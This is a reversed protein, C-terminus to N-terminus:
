GAGRKVQAPEIPGEQKGLLWHNLVLWLLSGPLLLLWWAPAPLPAIRVPIILDFVGFIGGPLDALLDQLLPIISGFETRLDFGSAWGRVASLWQRLFPELIPLAIWVLVGATAVQAALLLRWGRELRRGSDLRARVAPAYDTELPMDAVSEIRNFLAQLEALAQRCEACEELHELLAGMQGAALEGDLYAHLDEEQPHHFKYDSM